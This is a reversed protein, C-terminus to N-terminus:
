LNPDTLGTAVYNRLVKLEKFVAICAKGAFGIHKFTLVGTFSNNGTFESKGYVKILGNDCTILINIDEDSTYSGIAGENSFVEGSGSRGSYVNLTGNAGSTSTEIRFAKNTSNGAIVGDDDANTEATTVYFMTKCQNYRGKSHLKAHISWKEDTRLPSNTLKYAFTGTSRACWFENAEVGFKNDGSGSAAPYDTLVDGNHFFKLDYPQVDVTGMGVPGAVLETSTINLMTDKLMGTPALKDIITELKNKLVENEQALEDNVKQVKSMREFNSTFASKGNIWRGYKKEDETLARGYICINGIHGYFHKDSKIGPGTICINTSERLGDRKGSDSDYTGILDGDFYVNVGSATYEVGITYVRDVDLFAVAPANGQGKARTIYLERNSTIEIGGCINVPDVSIDSNFFRLLPTYNKINYGTPICIGFTFAIIESTQDVEVPGRITYMGDTSTKLFIGGELVNSLELKTSDVSSGSLLDDKIALNGVVSGDACVVKFTNDAPIVHTDIFSSFDNPWAGVKTEVERMVGASVESKLQPGVATVVEQKISEIQGPEISNNAMDHAIGINELGPIISTINQLSIGLDDEYAVLLMGGDKNPVNNYSMSSYGGFWTGEFPKGIKYNLVKCASLTIAAGTKRDVHYVTIQDRKYGGQDNQPNTLLFIQQGAPSKFGLYSHLCNGHIGNIAFDSNNVTTWATAGLDDTRFVQKTGSTRVIMEICNEKYEAIACEGGGSTPTHNVSWSWDSESTSLRDAVLLASNVASGPVFFQVPMVFKGNTLKIGNSGGGLFGKLNSPENTAPRFNYNVQFNGSSWNSDNVMCAAAATWNNYSNSDQNWNGGGKRWRGALVLVNEGDRITTPDMVRNVSPVYDTNETGTTDPLMLVKYEWNKGGDTSRAGVVAIRRQDSPHDRCDCIVYITGKNTQEVSPIRFYPGNLAYFEDPLGDIRMGSKFVQIRGDVIDKCAETAEAKIDNLATPDVVLLDSVPSGGVRATMEVPQNGSSTSPTVDVTLTSSKAKAM